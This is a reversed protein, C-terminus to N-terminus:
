LNNVIVDNRYEKEMNRTLPIVHEGFSDYIYKRLEASNWNEPIHELKTLIKDHVCAILDGIFDQKQQKTM